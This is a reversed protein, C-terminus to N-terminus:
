PAGARWKNQPSLVTLLFFVSLCVENLEGKKSSAVFTITLGAVLMAVGHHWKPVPIYFRDFLGQVRAVRKYLPPLVLYFLVLFLVLVKGFILKNINVGRVTLNHLNTENQRNNELFFEGTEVGFIRQGWSIEEGAGFVMLLIILSNTLVFARGHAHRDRVLRVLCLVAVAFLTLATFYELVGDERVYVNRFADENNAAIFFGVVIMLAMLGYSIIEIRTIEDSRIIRSQM